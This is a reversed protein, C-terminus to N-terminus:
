DVVAPSEAPRKRNPRDDVTHKLIDSNFRGPFIAYVPFNLRARKLARTVTEIIEGTPYRQSIHYLVLSGVDAERALDLVEPLTSHWHDRGEGPDDDRDDRSLFTCEHMLLKTGRYEDPDIPLTDGSASFVKEEVPMVIADKGMNTRIHDLEAQSCSQLEPRLKLKREVVHYGLTRSREQDPEPIHKVPFNRLELNRITLEVTDRRQVPLWKVKGTSVADFRQAFDKMALISRSAAPHVVRLDGPGGRLNLLQLLGALHDRHAHTIAITDVSHIKQGLLACAGDGADLLLRFPHVYVWTSFMPVSFGCLSLDM